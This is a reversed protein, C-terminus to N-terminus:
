IKEAETVSEITEEGYKQVMEKKVSEVISEIMEKKSETLLKADATMINQQKMRVLQREQAVESTLKSKVNKVKKNPVADCVEVLAEYLLDNEKEYHTIIAAYETKKIEYDDNIQQVQTTYEKKIEVIAKKSYITSSFIKWVLGGVVGLSVGVIPLPKECYEGVRDIIEQAQPKNVCYLIVFGVLVFVLLLIM